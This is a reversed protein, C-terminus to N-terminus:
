DAMVWLIVLVLVIPHLICLRHTYSWHIYWLIQCFYQSSQVFDPQSRAFIVLIKDGADIQSGICVNLV